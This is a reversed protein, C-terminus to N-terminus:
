NDVLDRRAFVEIAAIGASAAIAVMIAAAQGRFPEAPLLGIHAFPTVDVLWKPAGLLSGFLQWLFALTVLGYGIGSSARPILAYALTALGLFLLATPLCNLGAELLEGFSVSVGAASAGAWALLGAILSLAAAGAAALALRGGLWSRRGIPLSFLTELQQDAEEHRAAGIQACAFLSVVLVFFLFSFSLYGMPTSISGAGLKAIQQQLQKSIGAASISKSIVGVILAFAGVSGLWVVLSPLEARLAFATPSSLLTLRPPRSDHTTLLGSGVDRSTAIRGALAILIAGTALPLLLVLPRSGTFPRLQEAWGLPTGWRLWGLSSSTDAVVRLVFSVAIVSGALELAVRRSPAVQSALAGVGVFVPIVSSISLALYASGGAPLSALLSGAVVAAWLLLTGAAIAAMSGAYFTGRSVPEALVLEARGSDEEARLARVAALMGFVAALIALIGGTRWATYGGVTLLEYAKGYFLVVAKNHGFSRAFAIRQALTPYTHRYSVPNIYSVAAFLYAFAITRVRADAFARRALASLARM